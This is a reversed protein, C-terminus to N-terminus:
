LVYEQNTPTEPQTQLIYAANRDHIVGNQITFPM